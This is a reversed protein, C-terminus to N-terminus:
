TARAALDDASPANWNLGRIPRPVRAKPARVRLNVANMTITPGHAQSGGDSGGPQSSAMSRGTMRTVVEKRNDRVLVLDIRQGAQLDGALVGAHSVKVGTVVPKQGLAAAVDPSVDDPVLPQGKRVARMTLRGDVPASAFREGRRAQRTEVTLDAMTLTHFAAM